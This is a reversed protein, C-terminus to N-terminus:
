ARQHSQNLFESMQRDMLLPVAASVSPSVFAMSWNKYARREVPLVERFEFESHQKASKVYGLIEQLDALAGELYQMFRGDAYLLVGTVQYKENRQRASKLIDELEQNSLFSTATSTYIISFIQPKKRRVPTVM